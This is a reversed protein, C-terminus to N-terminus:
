ASGSSGGTMVVSDPVHPEFGRGGCELHPICGGVGTGSETTESMTWEAFTNAFFERAKERMGPENWKRNLGSPHPVSCIRFFPRRPGILYESWEFHEGGFEFAERVREGLLIVHKDRLLGGRTLSLASWKATEMPYKGDIPHPCINVRCLRVYQARTLGTMEKM